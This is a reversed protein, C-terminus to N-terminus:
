QKVNSLSSSGVFVRMRNAKSDGSALFKRIQANCSIRPFSKGDNEGAFLLDFQFYKPIDANM